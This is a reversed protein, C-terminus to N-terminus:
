WTALLMSAVSDGLFSSIRSDILIPIIAPVRFGVGMNFRTFALYMCFGHFGPWIGGRARLHKITSCLGSTILKTTSAAAIEPDNPDFSDNSDESDLCVYINPNSDEVAALTAIVHSSLRFSV